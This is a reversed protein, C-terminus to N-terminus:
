FVALVDIVLVVDTAPPLGLEANGEAGFAQAFPMTVLRRAGQRAGLLAQYMGDVLQGEAVILRVPGAGDWTSDLLEATDGRYVMIQALVQAGDEIVPGDAEVLDRVTLEEAGNSIPVEVEPADEPKSAPVVARIDIVFSLADGPEIVGGPSEEGYALESPIDLQLRSGVQAGILGQEWGAIVSRTGLVAMFPQGRDWSNDFEEGTATRAGVYDVVVADGLEAERGKGPVIETIVLETPLQDPISVVPRVSTDTPDTTGPAATTAPAATTSVEAVADQGDDSSGCGVLSVTAVAVAVRALLIRRRRVMRQVSGRGM